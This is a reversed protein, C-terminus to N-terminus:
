TCYCGPRLRAIRGKPVEIEFPEHGPEGSHACPFAVSYTQNLPNKIWDKTSRAEIKDVSMPTVWVLNPCEKFANAALLSMATLSPDKRKVV